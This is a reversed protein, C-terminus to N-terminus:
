GYVCVYEVNDFKTLNNIAIIAKKVVFIYCVSCSLSNYELSKWPIMKNGRTRPKQDQNPPTQERVKQLPFKRTSHNWLRKVYYQLSITQSIKKNM